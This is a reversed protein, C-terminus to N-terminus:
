CSNTLFVKLADLSQKTLFFFLFSSGTTMHTLNFPRKKLTANLFFWIYKTKQKDRFNYYKYMNLSAGFLCKAQKEIITINIRRYCSRPGGSREFGCRM